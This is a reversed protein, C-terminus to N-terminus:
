VLDGITFRAPTDATEDPIRRGNALWRALFLGFDAEAQPGARGFSVFRGAFYAYAHEVSDRVRTKLTPLKSM